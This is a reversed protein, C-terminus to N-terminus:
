GCCMRKIQIIGEMLLEPRPPCGPLLLDIPMLDQLRVRVAPNSVELFVGGGIACSGSAIVKAPSQLKARASLIYPVMAETVVSSVWLVQAEEPATVVRCGFREIDYRCGEASLWEDACCAGGIRYIALTSLFGKQSPHPAQKM